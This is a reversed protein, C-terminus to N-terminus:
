LTTEQNEVQQGWIAENYDMSGIKKANKEV